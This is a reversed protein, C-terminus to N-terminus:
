RGGPLLTELTCSVCSGLRNWRRATAAGGMERERTQWNGEQQCSSHPSEQKRWEVGSWELCTGEAEGTAETM